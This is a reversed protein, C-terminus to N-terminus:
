ARPLVIPAGHPTARAARDWAEKRQALSAATVLGRATAQQELADVWHQYYTAGTDPDGRDQAARIAQALAATWADFRLLGRDLLALALAFAQAEWPSRFVPGQADCPVGAARALRQAGEPTGPASDPPANM